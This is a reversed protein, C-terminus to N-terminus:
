GRNKIHIPFLDRFVYVLILLGGGIVGWKFWQNEVMTHWENGLMAGVGLFTTIWLVAHVMDYFLFKVISIDSIGAVYPTVNGITPIFRGGIIYALASKQLLEQAKSIREPTLRLYRGWRKIFPEGIYHGLMFASISGLMYGLLSVVWVTIINFEGQKSLVGALAVLASGPFPLGIAELFVGAFVGTLGLSSLVELIREFM